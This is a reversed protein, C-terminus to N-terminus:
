GIEQHAHPTAQASRYHRKIAELWESLGIRRGHCARAGALVDVAERALPPALGHEILLARLAALQLGSLAGHAREIQPIAGRITILLSRLFNSEGLVEEPQLVVRVAAQPEGFLVELGRAGVAAVRGAQGARVGSCGVDEILYVREGTKM